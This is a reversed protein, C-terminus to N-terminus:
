ADKSIAIIKIYGVENWNIEGTDLAPTKLHNSCFVIRYGAALDLKYSPISDHIIEQPFGAFLEKVNKAASIDSLRSKLKEAIEAGFEDIAREENECIM